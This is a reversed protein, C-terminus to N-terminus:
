VCFLAHTVVVWDFPNAPPSPRFRYVGRRAMMPWVTSLVLSFYGAFSVEELFNFRFLSERAPDTASLLDCWRLHRIAM